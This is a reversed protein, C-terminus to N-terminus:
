PPGYNMPGENANSAHKISIMHKHINQKKNKTLCSFIWWHNAPTKSPQFMVWPHSRKESRFFLVPEPCRQQQLNLWGLCRSVDLCCPPPIISLCPYWSTLSKQGWNSVHRLTYFTRFIPLNSNIGVFEFDLINCLFWPIMPVMRTHFDFKTWAFSM